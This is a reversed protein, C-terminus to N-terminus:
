LAIDRFGGPPSAPGGICGPRLFFSGTREKRIKDWIDGVGLLIAFIRQEEVGIKKKVRLSIKSSADIFSKKKCKFLQDIM